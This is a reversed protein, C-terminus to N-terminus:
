RHSPSAMLPEGIRGILATRRMALASTQAAGLMAWVSRDPRDAGDAADFSIVTSRALWPADPCLM